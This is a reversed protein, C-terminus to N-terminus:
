NRARIPCGKKAPCDCCECGHTKKVPVPVKRVMRETHLYIAGTQNNQIHINHVPGFSNNIFDEGSRHLVTFQDKCIGHLASFREYEDMRVSASGDQVTVQDGKKLRKSM